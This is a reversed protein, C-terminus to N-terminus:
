SGIVNSFKIILVCVDFEFGNFDINLMLDRFM